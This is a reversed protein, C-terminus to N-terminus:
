TFEGIHRKALPVNTLQRIDARYKVIPSFRTSVRWNAFLVIPSFAYQRFDFVGHPYLMSRGTIVMGVDVGVGKGM